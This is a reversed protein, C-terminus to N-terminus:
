WLEGDLTTRPLQSTLSKPVDVLNGQRTFFQSGNWYLRMGDFKESMWWGTPDMSDNWVTSTMLLKNSNPIKKSFDNSTPALPIALGVPKEAFLDPRQSYITAELSSQKRDWWYPV